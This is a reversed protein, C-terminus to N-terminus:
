SKGMGFLQKFDTYSYAQRACSESSDTGVKNETSPFLPNIKQKKGAAIAEVYAKQNLFMYDRLKGCNKVMHSHYKLDHDEPENDDKNENNTDPRTFFPMSRIMGEITGEITTEKNKMNTKRTTASVKKSHSGSDSDSKENKSIPTTKGHKKLNAFLSKKMKLKSGFTSSNPKNEGDQSGDNGKKDEDTKHTGKVNGNGNGNHLGEEESTPTYILDLQHFTLAYKQCVTELICSPVSKDCYYEFTKEDPNYIMAINGVPTYTFLVNSKKPPESDSTLGTADKVTCHTKRSERMKKLAPTYMHKYKDVDFFHSFAYDKLHYADTTNHDWFFSYVIYITSLGIGIGTAGISIQIMRRVVHEHQLRAIISNGCNNEQTKTLANTNGNGNGNGTDMSSGMNIGVGMYGTRHFMHVLTGTSKILPVLVFSDISDLVNIIPTFLM